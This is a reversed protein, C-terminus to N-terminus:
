KNEGINTQIKKLRHLTQVRFNQVMFSYNFHYLCTALKKVEPGILWTQVATASELDLSLSQMDIGAYFM